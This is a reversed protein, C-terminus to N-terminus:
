FTGFPIPLVRFFKFEVSCKTSPVYKGSPQWYGRTVQWLTTIVRQRIQYLTNSTKWLFKCSPRERNVYLPDVKKWYEGRFFRSTLIFIFVPLVTTKFVIYRLNMEKDHETCEHWRSVMEIEHTLGVYLHKIKNKLLRWSNSSIDTGGTPM